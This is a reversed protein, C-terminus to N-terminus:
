SSTQALLTKAAAILREARVRDITLASAIAEPDSSAITAIDKYGSQVLLDAESADLDGIDSLLPKTKMVGGNAEPAGTEDLANLASNAAAYIEEAKKADFSPINLLFDPGADIIDKVSSLGQQYLLEATTVGVGPISALRYIAEATLKEKKSSSKIDLKWGVLKSALRVNQGKKGIALSLQDDAVIIEMSREDEDIIVESVSAPSLANCVFKVSDDNWPVIDIKEGRLEQVISQVRTGKIGVCAGVPDVDKDTSYVAIKSREGPERAAGMVRVIGESIEPVELEFLKILLGPHTRSLVVQPGKSEKLVELIYARIRDGQRYGERPVQEKPPLIAEARGLNVFINGREFRHVMGTILENIRGKYEDYINEREANRVKQIIVQKATQAAIRGFDSIDLKFGLSDGLAADPDSTVADELMIQITPDIVESVVEKFEFLEVEGLEENYSAEIERQNGYKKKAATVLAAEIAEILVEKSIGKEKEVQDLVHNLNYYM